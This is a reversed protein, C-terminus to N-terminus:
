PRVPTWWGSCPSPRRRGHRAGARPSRV